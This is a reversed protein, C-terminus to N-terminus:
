ANDYGADSCQMHEILKYADLKCADTLMVLKEMKSIDTDYHVLNQFIAAFELFKEPNKGDFDPIKIKRRRAVSGLVSSSNLGITVNPDRNSDEYENIYLKAKYMMPKVQKDLGEFDDM